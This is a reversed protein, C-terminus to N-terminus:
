AVTLFSVQSNFGALSRKFNSRTDYGARASPNTFLIMPTTLTRLQKHPYRRSREKTLKFGIDKMKDISTSLVYDLSIIFLYSALASTSCQRLLRYRCGPHTFESGHKQMTDDHSRRNRQINWLYSEYAIYDFYSCNAVSTLSSGFAGREIAVVGLCLPPAVGKGSSSLKVRSVYRIDKLTLCPPM